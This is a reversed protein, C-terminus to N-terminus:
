LAWPEAITSTASIDKVQCTPIWNYRLSSMYSDLKLQDVEISKRIIDAVQNLDPM